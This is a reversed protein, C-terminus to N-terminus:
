SFSQPLNEDTRLRSLANLNNHDAKLFSEWWSLKTKGSFRAM